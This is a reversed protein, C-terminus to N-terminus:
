AHDPKPGPNPTTAVVNLVRDFEPEIRDPPVLDALGARLDADAQKLSTRSKVRGDPHYALSLYRGALTGLAADDLESCGEQGDGGKSLPVTSCLGDNNSKQSKSLPVDNEATGSQSPGSTGQEDRKNWQEVNAVGEPPLFRDFAEAFHAFEYCRVNDEGIRARIATIGLPKLLRALKAQTIPKAARGYEAWPRGDIDVLRTILDASAIKDLHDSARFIDRADALLLELRSGEDTGEAAAGEMAAKRARGQEGSWEGGAVDAIALMPRLNDARRNFVGKPMVPDADRVAEANDTAWRVIKRALTDLDETRDVRFQEIAESALRRKLDIGISRDTLTGPLQGILAIACAGYVSFSRAELDEGVVRLVQGGKRHGANLIGRLEDNEGLFSDAEDVLLTPRHQQVVRFIAAASTNAAPLPRAVLRGLVDLLTTKGCGRTPSRIALRPSILSADLLYSHVVWLAALDRAHDPLVVHRRIATALDTLLTDGAVPAPWAEPEPFSVASGQLSDGEDLGLEARKADVARDLMSARVALKEAAGKRQKEYEFPALRALRELEVEDDQGAGKSKQQAKEVQKRAHQEPQPEELCHASIGNTPDILIAVIADPEDGRKLLQNIVYWVARSRDGGFDAGCGDKILSDLDHKRSANRKPKGNAKANTGQSAGELEPLLEDILPDINALDGAEGIQQGTVTIYRDAGRYLECSVGDAVNFKRHVKAGSCRGIVRIGQLSPTVECYSRARNAVAAAWPHLEGTDKNRCDDLDIAAIDSGALAYGIGDVKRDSHVKLCTDLDCWTAPDTSRAFKSPNRGQFPPKTQKGAREVWRWVVWRTDHALSSLATPLQLRKEITTV